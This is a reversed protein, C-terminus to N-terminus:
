RLKYMGRKVGYEITMGTLTFGEGDPSVEEIQIKISQCAQIKPQIRFQYINDLSSEIDGYLSESGYPSADGYETTSNTNAPDLEIIEKLYDNYNYM